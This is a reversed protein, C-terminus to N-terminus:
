GLADSRGGAAVFDRLAARGGGIWPEGHAFLLNDFEHEALIRKLAALMGRKDQEPNGLLFDPVFALEGEWRILADAFLVAGDATDILLATDDDCIAGVELARMGPALVSGVAFPEVDREEDGTFEYLGQDNCLVPADPFAARVESSSRWHHRNSLVVQLVGRERLADLLPAPDEPLLPDVLTKGPEWYHSHVVQGINPHRASWHFVGPLLEQLPTSNM